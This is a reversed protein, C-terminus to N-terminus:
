HTQFVTSVHQTHTKEAQLQQLKDKHQNPSDKLMEMLKSPIAAIEERIMRPLRTGAVVVVM